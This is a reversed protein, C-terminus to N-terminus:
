LLMGLIVGAAGGHMVKNMNSYYETIPLEWEVWGEPGADILKITTMMQVDFGDYDTQKMIYLYRCTDLQLCGCSTFIHLIVYLDQMEQCAAMAKRKAEDADAM